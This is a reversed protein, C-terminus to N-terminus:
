LDDWEKWARNGSDVVEPATSRVTAESSSSPVPMAEALPVGEDWSAIAAANAADVVVDEVTPAQFRQTRAHEQAGEVDGRMLAYVQETTLMTGAAVEPLGDIFADSPQQEVTDAFPPAVAPHIADDKTPTEFFTPHDPNLDTIPILQGNSGVMMVRPAKSPKSAYYVILAIPTTLVGLCCLSFGFLLWTSGFVELQMANISMLWGETTPCSGECSIVLAYEGSENLRWSAREVMETKDGTMPQFDLLCQSNDVPMSSLSSGEVRFLEVSMELSEDEQYFRYCVDKLEGTRHTGDGIYEGHHLERPDMAGTLAGSQSSMIVAGLVVLVGGVVSLRFAWPSRKAPESAQM